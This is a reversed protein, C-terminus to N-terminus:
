FAKWSFEVNVKDAESLALNTSHAIVECQDYDSNILKVKIEIHHGQFCTEIVEGNLEGDVNIDVDEPRVFGEISDKTLINVKGLFSATYESKPKSYVDIPTGIQQIAGKNMIALRDSLYYAEDKHHTVFLATINKTKIIRKVDKLLSEKLLVDLNNFPEDLLLIDPNGAIARALAVRQMEGGSIQHPFRKELGELKCLNLLEELEKKDNKKDMGFLINKEVNMHPFLALDQFVLGVSREEPQIFTKQDSITKDGFIIKGDTPTEFGAIMRLVTTKGSGSSGLITFIEGKEIDLSINDVARNNGFFKNINNLSLKM